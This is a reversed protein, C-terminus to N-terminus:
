LMPIQFFHIVINNFVEFSHLFKTYWTQFSIDQEMNLLNIAYIYINM